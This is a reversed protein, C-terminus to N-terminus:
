SSSISVRIQSTVRDWLSISPHCRCLTQISDTTHEAKMPPTHAGADGQPAHLARSCCFANLKGKIEQLNSGHACNLLNHLLPLHSRRQM